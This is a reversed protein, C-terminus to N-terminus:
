GTAQQVASRVGAEKAVAETVSKTVGNLAKQFKADNVTDLQDSSNIEMAVKTSKGGPSGTITCNFAEGKKVSDPCDLKVSVKKAASEAVSASVGASELGSIVAKRIEANLTQNFKQVAQSPDWESSGCGSLGFIAVAAIVVTSAIGASSFSKAKM